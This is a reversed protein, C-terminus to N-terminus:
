GLTSAARTAKSRAVAASSTLIYANYVGTMKRFLGDQAGECAGNLGEFVEPLMASALRSRKAASSTLNTANHLGTM